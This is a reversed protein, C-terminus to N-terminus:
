KKKLCGLLAQAYKVRCGVLEKQGLMYSNLQDLAFLPGVKSCLSQGQGRHHQLLASIKPLSGWVVCVGIEAAKESRSAKICKIHM